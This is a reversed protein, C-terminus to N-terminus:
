AKRQAFLLILDRVAYAAMAAGSLPICVYLWWKPLELIPTLSHARLTLNLGQWALAIAFALGLLAILVRVSRDATGGLMSTFGELAMHERERWLAAAGVFVMWAFLLQVIEDLWALSFLAFLRSVVNVALIAFLAVLCVLPVFRLVRGTAQDLSVLPGKSM